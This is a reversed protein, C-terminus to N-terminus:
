AAPSAPCRPTRGATPSSARSSADSARSLSAPDGLPGAAPRCHRPLRGHGDGTAGHCGACALPLRGARRRRAGPAPRRDSTPSSTGAIRSRSCTAGRRCRVPTRRPHHRPLLRLADRARMFAADGFNRPPPKLAGAVGRPRRRRHLPV